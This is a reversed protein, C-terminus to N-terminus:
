LGSRAVAMRSITGRMARRSLHASQASESSHRNQSSGGCSAQDQQGIGASKTKNDLLIGFVLSFPITNLEPDSGHLIRDLWFSNHNLRPLVWDAARM